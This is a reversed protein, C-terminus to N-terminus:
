SILGALGEADARRYYLRFAATEALVEQLRTLREAVDPAGHGEGAGLLWEEGDQSQVVVYGYSQLAALGIRM